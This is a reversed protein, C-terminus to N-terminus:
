WLYWRGGALVWGALLANTTAHAIVADGIRGRRLFAVAYILGALTGALWRDGHMLGFALSSILVSMLTYDRPSRSEFDAAILRRILFGRFTLEEAIPVTVVAAATRVVLWAVRAQAPWSALGSAIGNDAHAGAMLDLGLWMGFVAFGALVSLWGFGWDLERYKSRLFWLAGGAAVFRLPYLWEFGDSAARSIMAAALIALLPLLYAATPNHSAPEVSAHDREGRIFWPVRRSALAFGLAVCNFAIWGAQSHFGGLAIGPAGAAGILILATIRVANSLWMVAMGAPILLIAQPFRYERRLFWLWAASFVLMLGTGEFGACWPLITVTFSPSGITMTARDAVVVPLFLHLLGEVIRFTLDVAPKWYLDIAPNWIRGNWFPYVAVVRWAVIGGALAYAWSHGARRILRWASKPPVFACGGFAVTLVGAAYWAVTTLSGQSVNSPLFSLGAFILLAAFHGALFLWRISLQRLEDSVQQFSSKATAYGLALFLSSFTVGIQLLMGAGRDKHVLNSLPVWELFFLLIFLALRQPLGLSLLPAAGFATGFSNSSAKRSRADAWGNSLPVVGPSDETDLM